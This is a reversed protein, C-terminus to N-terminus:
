ENSNSCCHQIKKRILLSLGVGCRMTASYYRMLYYKQLSENIEEILLSDNDHCFKIIVLFCELPIRVTRKELEQPTATQM